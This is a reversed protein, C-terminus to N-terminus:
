SGWASNVIIAKLLAFKEKREANGHFDLKLNKRCALELEEMGRDLVAELGIAINVLAAAAVRKPTMDVLTSLPLKALLGVACALIRLKLSEDLQKHGRLAQFVLARLKRPSQSKNCSETCCTRKLFKQAKTRTIRKQLSANGFFVRKEKKPKGVISKSDTGCEQQDLASVCVGNETQVSADCMSVGEQKQLKGNTDKIDMACGICHSFPLPVANPSPTIRGLEIVDEEVEYPALQKQLSDAEMENGDEAGRSCEGAKHDTTDFPEKVDQLCLYGRQFDHDLDKLTAGLSLAEGISASCAYRQYRSYAQTREKKPNEEQFSCKWSTKWQHPVPKLSLKGM